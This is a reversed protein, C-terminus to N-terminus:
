FPLYINNIWDKIIVNTSWANKNVNIFTKKNKVIELNSLSKYIKGNRAGKFIIYLTLRRGDGCISLIVSVRLKEQLLITKCRIKHVTANNPMNSFIATEDMNIINEPPINYKKRIQIISKLFGIMRTESDAPIQQGIHSGKRLSLHFRDMLRYVATLLSHPKLDKKEPHRKLLEIGISWTTISNGLSRSFEIWNYIELEINYDFVKFRGHHLTIKTDPNEVNKFKNENKIWKRITKTCIGGFKAAANNGNKKLM